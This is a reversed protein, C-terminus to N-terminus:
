FSTNYAEQPFNSTGVKELYMPNKVTKSWKSLYIFPSYFYSM